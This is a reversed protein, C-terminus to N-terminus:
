GIRGCEVRLGPEWQEVLMCGDRAGLAVNRAATLGGVGEFACGTGNTMVIHVLALKLRRGVVVSALAAVGGLSELRRGKCQSTVHLAAERQLSRVAGNQAVRTMLARL